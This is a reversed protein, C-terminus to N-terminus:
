AFHKAERAISEYIAKAKQAAEPSIGRAIKDDMFSIMFAWGEPQESEPMAFVERIDAQIFEIFIKENVNKMINEKTQGKSINM